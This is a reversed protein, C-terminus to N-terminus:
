TTILRLRKPAVHQHRAAPTTVAEPGVAKRHVVKAFAYAGARETTCSSVYIRVSKRRLTRLKTTVQMTKTVVSSQLVVM